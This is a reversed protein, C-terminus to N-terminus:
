AALPVVKSAGAPAISFGCSKVLDSLNAEVKRFLIAMIFSTRDTARAKLKAVLLM